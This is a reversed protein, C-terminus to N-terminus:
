IPTIKQSLTLLIVATKPYLTKMERLLEIGSKGPMMIDLIAIDSPSTVMKGLADEANSAEVCQMHQRALVRRLSKRVVEEDDVILVSGKVEPVIISEQNKMITM